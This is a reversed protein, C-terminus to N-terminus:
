GILELERHRLALALAHVRTRAELKRMLNRVHTQVTLPSLVLREAVDDSTLGEALLGLIELERPSLLHLADHERADLLEALRPDVYERGRAVARIAAILEAPAGAKLALGRAGCALADRLVDQELAGGTYLLIGADPRREVVARALDIGSGQADLGIDVLAVDPMRRIVMDLGAAFTDASGTVRMGERRLLLEVGKRLAVHDDILVVELETGSM